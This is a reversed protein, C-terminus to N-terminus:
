NGAAATAPEAIPIADFPSLDFMEELTRRLFQENYFIAATKGDPSKVTWQDICGEGYGRKTHEITPIQKSM